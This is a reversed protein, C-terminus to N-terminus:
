KCGLSVIVLLYFEHFNLLVLGDTVLLPLRQVKTCKGVSDGAAYTAVIKHPDRPIPNEFFLDNANILTHLSIHFQRHICFHLSQKSM